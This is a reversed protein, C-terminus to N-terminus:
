VSKVIGVVIGNMFFDNVPIYIDEYNSNGPHLIVYDKTGEFRKLTLQNEVKNGGIIIEGNEAYSQNKVIVIDENEIGFDIM